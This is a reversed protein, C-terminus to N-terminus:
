RQLLWIEQAYGEITRDSSFYGSCATNHISIRRWEAPKRYLGQLDMRAESYAHFDKLVFFEDNNRMVTDYILNFDGSLRAFTGDKLQDIVKRINEDANYVDWALYNGEERLKEIEDAKLGFTRINEEGVLGAIEVNAGDLTGLTIAGNMMFKMNGTGSAEMGTTSIQESIEAAPYILQANSVSFDPIFVVRMRNNVRPDRNVVDAVSNVLRIVDRAFVYSQAAKGAFLFTVPVIDLEPEAQLRNYLDMVQLINMLQRKYGHFRKVQVDFLSEPDTAIVM